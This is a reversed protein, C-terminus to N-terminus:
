KSHMGSTKRKWSEYCLLGVGLFVLNQSAYGLLIAAAPPFASGYATAISAYAALTGATWYTVSKLSPFAKAQSPHLGEKVMEVMLPVWSIFRGVLGVVAATGLALNMVSPAAHSVVHLAIALYSLAECTLFYPNTTKGTSHKATLSITALALACILAPYTAGLAVQGSALGMSISTAALAFNNVAWMRLSYQNAPYLAPDRDFFSGVRSLLHQGRQESPIARSAYVSFGLTALIFSAAGLLKSLDLSARQTSGAHQLPLAESDKRDSSLPEGLARFHPPFDSTALPNKTLGQHTANYDTSPSLDPAVRAPIARRPQDPTEKDTKAACFSAAALGVM